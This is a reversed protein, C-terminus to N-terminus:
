IRKGLIQLRTVHRPIAIKTTYPVNYFGLTALRPGADTVFRPGYRLKVRTAQRQLTTDSAEVYAM